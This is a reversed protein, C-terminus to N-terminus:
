PDPPTAAGLWPRADKSGARSTAVAECRRRIRRVLDKAEDHLDRREMGACLSEMQAVQSWVRRSLTGPDMWAAALRHWESEYLARGPSTELFARALRSPFVPHVPYDSDPFLQDMGHPLFVCQNASPDWGIRYNNRAVGYGDWHGLLAEGALLTAFRRGDLCATLAAWREALNVAAAARSLRDLAARAPDGVEGSLGGAVQFAGGVDTGAEPELVVGGPRGFAVECFEADYGQRSVYLGLPRGDLSVRAHQVEPVPLGAERFLAAGLFAHLRSPDEVSNELHLRRPGAPTAWSITFSPRDDVPRFSGRGKLRVRADSLM